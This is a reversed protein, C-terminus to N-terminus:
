IFYLVDNFAKDCGEFPCLNPKEGTHTRYHIKTASRQMFAKGCGPWECKYPRENLHIRMHRTVDTKRMFRKGCQEWSCLFRRESPDTKREPQDASEGFHM